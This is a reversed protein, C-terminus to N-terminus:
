LTDRTERKAKDIGAKTNESVERAVSGAKEGPTMIDGTETRREREVGANGRHVGEKVADGVDKITKKLEDAM